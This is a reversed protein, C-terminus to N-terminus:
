SPELITGPYDIESNVFQASLINDVAMRGDKLLVARQEILSQYMGRFKCYNGIEYVLGEITALNGDWRIDTGDLTVPNNPDYNVTSTSNNDSM